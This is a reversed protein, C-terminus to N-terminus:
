QRVATQFVDVPLLQTFIMELGSESHNQLGQSELFNQTNHWYFLSVTRILFLGMVNIIQHM